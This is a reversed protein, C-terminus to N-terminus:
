GQIEIIHGGKQPESPVQIIHAVTILNDSPWVKNEHNNAIMSQIQYSTTFSDIIAKAQWRM